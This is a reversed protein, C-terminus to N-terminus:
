QIVRWRSGDYRVISGATQACAQADCDYGVAVDFNGNWRTRPLGIHVRLGKGASWASEPLFTVGTDALDAARDRPFDQTGVRVYCPCRAGRPGLRSSPAALEHRLLVEAMAYESGSPPHQRTCGVMCALLTLILAVPAGHRL